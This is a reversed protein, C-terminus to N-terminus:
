NGHKLILIVPMKQLGQQTTLEYEIINAPVFGLTQFYNVSEQTLPFYWSPQAYEWIDIELYVQKGDSLAKVLDAEFVERSNFYRDSRLNVLNGDQADLYSDVTERESFTRMSRWSGAFLVANTEPVNAKVWDGAEAYGVYSEVKSDTLASGYQYYNFCILIVVVAIIALKVYKSKIALKALESLEIIGFVALLIIFPVVPLMYRDFANRVFFEIYIWFIFPALLIFYFEKKRYFLVFFTGIIAFILVYWSLLHPLYSIAEFGQLLGEQNIIKAIFVEYVLNARFLAYYVLNALVFLGVALLYAFRVATDKLIKYKFTPFYILFAIFLLIAANKTLMAAFLVGVTIIAWLRTREKELKLICYAGVVFMATLPADALPRVSYFWFLPNFAFVLAAILGFQKDKLESGLLYMFFIGVIAYFLAMLKGAVFIDQTFIYFFATIFQPVVYDGSLFSYSFMFSPQRLFKLAYWLHVSADNWISEMFFYKLRLLVGALLVVLFAQNYRQDLFAVLQNGFKMSVLVLV